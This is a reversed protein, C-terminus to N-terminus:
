RLGHLLIVTPNTDSGWELYHLELDGINLYKDQYDNFMSNSEIKSAM